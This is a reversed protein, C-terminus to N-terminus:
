NFESRSPAYPELGEDQVELEAEALRRLMAVRDRLIDSARM